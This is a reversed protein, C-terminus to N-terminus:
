KSINGNGAINQPTVKFPQRIDYNLYKQKGTTQLRAINDAM